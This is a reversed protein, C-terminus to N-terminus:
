FRNFHKHRFNFRKVPQINTNSTTIDNTDNNFLPKLYNKIDNYSSYCSRTYKGTCITDFASGVDLYIANPFQKHLESILFKAGMGGSVLIMTDSDIEIKDKVSNFITDFDNDFWNNPHIIIHYDISFIEKSKYMDANAVYIKRRKSEKIAKYLELKDNTQKKIPTTNDIIIRHFDVWNVSLGPSLLSEWFIKDSSDHWAGIMSNPQQSNYIFSLRVKEGINQTYQVDDCNHGEWFNACRYEGDGYKAFICPKNETIFKTLISSSNQNSDM